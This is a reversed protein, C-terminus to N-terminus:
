TRATTFGMKSRSLGMGGMAQIEMAIRQSPM